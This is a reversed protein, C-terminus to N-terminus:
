SNIFQLLSLLGSYEKTIGITYITPELIIHSPIFHQKGRIIHYKPMDIYKAKLGASNIFQKGVEFFELGGAKKLETGGKVPNVGSLTVHLKNDLTEYSYKKAGLTKFRKYEIEFEFTGMYHTKNFKDIAYAGSKTSQKIANDNFTTFDLPKLSKVSDTDVYVLNNGAINIGEQLANRAHATVWVGWQYPLFARDTGKKLAHEKSPQNENDLIYDHYELEEKIIDEVMMGYIGNLLNKSKNYYIEQGSINKLETKRKFYDITLKKLKYPLDGYHSIFTDTFTIQSFKYQSLIIQLDIDTVTIELYEASLIRGNDNVYNKINRTKALPIYPNTTYIDILELDNIALRTLIANKNEIRRQLQEATQTGVYVFPTIPYKNNCIVDPYSSSRDYSYINQLIKGVYYRNAHTNGGRFAERLMTYLPLDPLLKDVGSYSKGGLAKKADRRVYSTSTLPISAITNNTLELEKTIAEALGLTDHLIYEIQSDTLITDSYREQEYDFDDGSLKIHEVEMKKTYEKLSMNSLKYSCRYEINAVSLKLIKRRDLAFIDQTTIETHISKLYQFEYSLNHIYIALTDEIESNIINFLILYEDWTRGLILYEPYVCLSWAYMHNIKEGLDDHIVATEIDFTAVKDLYKKRKSEARQM